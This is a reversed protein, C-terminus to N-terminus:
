AACAIIEVPAVLGADLAKRINASREAWDPGSLIHRNLAPM